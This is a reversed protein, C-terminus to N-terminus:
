DVAVEAYMGQVFHPPGGAVQSPGDGEAAAALYEQPSAGVPIFCLLAYRGPEALTGDGVAGIQPGGPEALLVTGPEGLVAGLEDPPLGVLDAVSRDEDDPLRFAVVEHLEEEANNVVSLRTGAPMSTPLGGLAYDVLTVQVM